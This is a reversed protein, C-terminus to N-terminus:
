SRASDPSSPQPSDRAGTTQIPPQTPSPPSGTAPHSSTSAPPASSATETESASTPAPTSCQHTPCTRKTANHYVADYLNHIANIDAPGLQEVASVDITELRSHDRLAMRKHDVMGSYKYQANLTNGTAPGLHIESFDPFQDAIASVLGYLAHNDLESIAHVVPLKYKSFVLCLAHIEGTDIAAYWKTFPWLNDELDGLGYVFLEPNSRLSIEIQARDTLQVYQM